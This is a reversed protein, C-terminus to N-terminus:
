SAEYNIVGMSGIVEDDNSSWRSSCPTTSAQDGGYNSVLHVGYDINWPHHHVGMLQQSFSLPTMVANQDPPQIFVNSSQIKKPQSNKEKSSIMSVKSKKSSKELPGKKRLKKPAGKTKTYKPDLVKCTSVQTADDVHDVQMSLQSILNRGCGSGLKSIALDSAKTEIWELLKQTENDNDAALDAVDTFAKCLKEYNLQGPTTIWGNYNIKVRMYLRSVDKRWRRLIYQEPVASLKNRILVAIDNVELQRKVHVDLQRYCRFVRSKSPSTQHNHELHVGTISWVGATDSCASLRAKCCTQSTPQPKLTTSTNSVVKEAVHSHLTRLLGKTIKRHLEKELQFVLMIHMSRTFNLFKM